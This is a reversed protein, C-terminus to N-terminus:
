EIASYNIIRRNKEIKVKDCIVSNQIFSGEGIESGEWVVSHDLIADEKIIVDDHLISFPGIISGDSIAM